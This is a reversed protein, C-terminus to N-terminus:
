KEIRIVNNKFMGTMGLEYYTLEITDILVRRWQLVNRKIDTNKLLSKKVERIAKRDLTKVFSM